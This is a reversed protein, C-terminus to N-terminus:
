CVASVPARIVSFMQDLDASAPATGLVSAANGRQIEISFRQRLYETARIEGTEQWIMKGLESILRSAEPGLPGVTEVGVARFLYDQAINQYKATKKREAQAAAAGAQTSTAAIHSLAMTCVCTVDWTWMKGREWPVLTVGDPRLGNTPSIGLPELETEITASAFARKLTANLSSHRSKRARIKKCSLGHYGRDDVWENCICRHPTVIPAGLRLGVAIRLASDNLLNGPSPAPLADLWAGNDKTSIGLLRAQSSIDSQAIETLTKVSTQIVPEDWVKQYKRAEVAPLNAETVRQWEAEADGCYVEPDFDSIDSALQTVSYASALFAPLALKELSRIGLGGNAAPLSAQTWNMDTLNVNTIACLCERIMSDFKTLLGRQLYCRATRLQYTMRVPGMSCKLLYLAHHAPLVKLRQIM